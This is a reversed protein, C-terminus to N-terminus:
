GGARMRKRDRDILKDVLRAQPITIVIFLIAVTTVASLNFNNAAIIKSQNFADITGIIAVLATDKQLSICNNMLPPIINRVALPVVVYRMTKTHSLGLSRAAAVQSHHVGEIGARYVESTYAGYTLTLAIIAYSTSGLDSLIPLNTLPLGFGILYITIIAPLGRFLDGYATALYRLPRGAEGPLTRAIAILLSWVLILVASVAFITVNTGFAWIVKGASSQILELDFFTRSVAADNVAMFWAGATVVLLAGSWSLAKWSALSAEAGLARAEYVDAHRRAAASKMAARIALLLVYGAAVAAIGGPILAAVKSVGQEVAYSGIHQASVAVLFFCFIAIVLTLTTRLGHTQTTGRARWTAARGTESHMESSSGAM